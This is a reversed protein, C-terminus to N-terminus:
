PVARPAPCRRSPLSPPRGPRPWGAGPWRPRWPRLSGAGAEGLVKGAKGAAGAEGLRTAVAMTLRATPAPKLPSGAMRWSRRLGGVASGGVGHRARGQEIEGGRGLCRLGGRTRRRRRPTHLALLRGITPRRSPSLAYHLQLPVFRSELPTIRQHTIKWPVSGIQRSAVMRCRRRSRWARVPARGQDIPQSRHGRPEAIKRDGSRVKDVRSRSSRRPARTQCPLLSGRKAVAGNSSGPPLPRLPGGPSRAMGAGKWAGATQGHVDSPGMWTGDALSARITPRGAPPPLYARRPSAFRTSFAGTHSRRPKAPCHTSM